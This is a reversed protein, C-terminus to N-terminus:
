ECSLCCWYIGNGNPLLISPVATKNTVWKPPLCVLKGLPVCVVIEAGSFRYVWIYSKCNCFSFHLDLPIAKTMLCLHQEWVLCCWQTNGNADSPKTNCKPWDGMWTASAIARGFAGCFVKGQLRSNTFGFSAKGIVFLFFAYGIHNRQAYSLTIIKVLVVDICDTEPPSYLAQYQM